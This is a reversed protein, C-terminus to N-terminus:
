TMGAFRTNAPVGAANGQGQLRGFDLMGGNVVVDGQIPNLAGLNADTPNNYNGDALAGTITLRGRGALTLTNGASSSIQGIDDLNQVLYGAALNVTGGGSSIIINKFNGEPNNGAGIIRYEGGNTLTINRVARQLGLTLQDNRGFEQAGGIGNYQVGVGEQRHILTTGAITGDVTIDGGFQPAPHNLFLAGGGSLSIGAGGGYSANITALNGTNVTIVGSSNTLVDDTGYAGITYNNATFALSNATKDGILLIRGPTALPDGFIVDDTDLPLTDLSWNLRNTWLFGDGPTGGSTGEWTAVQAQAALTLASAVAVSSTLRALSFSLPRPKTNNHRNM